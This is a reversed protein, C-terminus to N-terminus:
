LVSDNATFACHIPTGRGTAKIAEFGQVEDDECKSGMLRENTMLTQVKIEPKEYKKM